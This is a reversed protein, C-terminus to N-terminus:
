LGLRDLFYEMYTYKEYITWVRVTMGNIIEVEKGDKDKLVVDTFSVVVKFFAGKESMTADNAISKITGKICGFESQMLGDVTFKCEDGPSIRARDHASM